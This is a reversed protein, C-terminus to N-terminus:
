EPVLIVAKFTIVMLDLVKLGLISLPPSVAEDMEQLTSCTGLTTSTYVFKLMIPIQVSLALNIVM